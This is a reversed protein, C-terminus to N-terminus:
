LVITKLSYIIEHLFEMQWPGDGFEQTFTCFNLENMFDKMDSSKMERFLNMALVKDGRIWFKCLFDFYSEVGFCEELEKLTKKRM